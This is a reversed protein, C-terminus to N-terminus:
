EEPQPEPEPEPAPSPEPEEMVPTDPDEPSTEEPEPEPEPETEEPEVAESGGSTATEMRIALEAFPNHPRGARPPDLANKEELRVKLAALGELDITEIAEQEVESLTFSSYAIKNMTRYIFIVMAVIAGLSLLIVTVTAIRAATKSSIKKLDFKAM